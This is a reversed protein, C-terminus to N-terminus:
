YFHNAVMESKFARVERLLREGEIDLDDDEHLFLRGKLATDLKKEHLTRAKLYFNPTTGDYGWIRLNDVKGDESLFHLMHDIENSLSTDM